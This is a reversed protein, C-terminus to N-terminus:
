DRCFAVILHTRGAIFDPHPKYATISPLSKRISLCLLRHTKSKLLSKADIVATTIRRIVSEEQSLLAFPLIEDPAFSIVMSVKPEALVSSGDM